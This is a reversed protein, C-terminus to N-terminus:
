VVFYIQPGYFSLMRKIFSLARYNIRRSKLVTLMGKWKVTMLNFYWKKRFSKSKFLIDKWWSIFSVSFLWTSASKRLLSEFNFLMLSVFQYVWITMAFVSPTQQSILSTKTSLHIYYLIIMNSKHTNVCNSTIWIPLTKQPFTIYCWYSCRVTSTIQPSPWDMAIWSLILNLIKTM